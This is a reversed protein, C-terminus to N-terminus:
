APCCAPEVPAPAAPRFAAVTAAALRSVIGPATPRAAALARRHMLNRAESPDVSRLGGAIMWAALNSDNDVLPSREPSTM